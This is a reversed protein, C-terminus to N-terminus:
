VMDRLADETWQYLAKLDAERSGQKDLRYSKKEGTQYLRMTFLREQGLIGSDYIMGVEGIEESDFLRKIGFIIGSTLEVPDKKMIYGGKLHILGDKVEKAETIVYKKLWQIILNIKQDSLYEENVMAGKFAWTHSNSVHDTINMLHSANGDIQKVHIYAIPHDEFLRHVEWEMHMEGPHLTFGGFLHVKGNDLRKIEFLKV